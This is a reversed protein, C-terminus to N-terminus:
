DSAATPVTVDAGAGLLARLARYRAVAWWIAWVMFVDGAGALWALASSHVISVFTLLVSEVLIAVLCIIAPYGYQVAARSVRESGESSARWFVNLVERKEKFSCSRYVDLNV